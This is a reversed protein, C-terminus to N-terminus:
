GCHEPVPGIYYGVLFCVQINVQWPYEDNDQKAEVTSAQQASSQSVDVPKDIKRVLVPQDTMDYAGNSKDSERVTALQEPLKNGDDAM